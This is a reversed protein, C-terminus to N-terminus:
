IGVLSDWDSRRALVEAPTLRLTEEPVTDVLSRVLDYDHAAGGLLRRRADVLEEPAGNLYGFVDLALELDTSVPARGYLAARRLALAAAGALVDDAHEGEALLLRPEFREALHLAYGQDPGPVGAHGRREVHEGPRFDAPRHPSWSSPVPLRFAGRVEDQELIPAFKPQTM